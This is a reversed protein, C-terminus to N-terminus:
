DAVGILDLVDTIFPHKAQDAQITIYDGLTGYQDKAMWTASPKFIAVADAEKETDAIKQMAGTLRSRHMFRAVVYAYSAVEVAAQGQLLPKYGVVLNQQNNDQRELATVIVHMDLKFFLRAFTTLQSLVQGYHQLQAAAPLQGPGVNQNGTARQMSMRQLDTIGDFVLLEYGPRCGFEGVMRHDKPQNKVLWDYVINLDAMEDLELIKPHPNYERVSFPNGGLNIGLVRNGIRRDYVASFASRTKNSGPMGYHLGKYKVAEPLVPRM